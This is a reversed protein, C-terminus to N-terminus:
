AFIENPDYDEDNGDDELQIENNSFLFSKWIMGNQGALIGYDRTEEISGKLEVKAELAVGYHVEEMLLQLFNSASESMSLASSYCRKFLFSSLRLKSEHLGFNNMSIVDFSGRFAKLGDRLSDIEMNILEEASIIHSENYLALKDEQSRGLNTENELWFEVSIDDNEMDLDEMSDLFEQLKEERLFDYHLSTLDGDESDEQLLHDFVIEFCERVEYLNLEANENKVIESIERATLFHHNGQLDVFEFIKDHLPLNEFGFARASAIMDDLAIKTFELGRGRYNLHNQALTLLRQLLMTICEVYVSNPSVKLWKAVRETQASKDSFSYKPIFRCKRMQKVMESLYFQDENENLPLIVAEPRDALTWRFFWEPSLITKEGQFACVWRFTSFTTLFSAIQEIVFCDFCIIGSSADIM